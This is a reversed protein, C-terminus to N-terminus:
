RRYVPHAPDVPLGDAGISPDFGRKEIQAKRSAHCNWCLSQLRGEYFSRADGRHPEVHDAVTAPTLEGRALCFTCLPHQRLQLYRRRKWFGSDYLHQHPSTM